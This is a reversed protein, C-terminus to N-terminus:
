RWLGYSVTYPKDRPQNSVIEMVLNLAWCLTYSQLCKQSYIFSYSVQMMREQGIVSEVSVLTLQVNMRM